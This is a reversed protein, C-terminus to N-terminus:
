SLVDMMQRAAALESCHGCLWVYACSRTRPCHQVSILRGLVCRHLVRFKDANVEFAVTTTVKDGGDDTGVPTVCTGNLSGCWVCINRRGSTIISLCLGAACLSLSLLCQCSPPSVFARHFQTLVLLQDLFMIVGDMLVASSISSYLYSRFRSHRPAHPRLACYYEACRAYHYWTWASVWGNVYRIEWETVWEFLM